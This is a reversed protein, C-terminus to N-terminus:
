QSFFYLPQQRTRRSVLIDEEGMLSHRGKNAKILVLINCQSFCSLIVQFSLLPSLFHFFQLPPWPLKQEDGAAVTSMSLVLMFCVWAVAEEWVCRVDMLSASPPGLRQPSKRDWREVGRMSIFPFSLPLRSLNFPPIRRIVLFQNLGLCYRMNKKRERRQIFVWGIWCTCINELLCMGCCVSLWKTHLFM